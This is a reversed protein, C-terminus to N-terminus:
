NTLSKYSRTIRGYFLSSKLDYSMYLYKKQDRIKTILSSMSTLLQNRSTFFINSFKNTFEGSDNIQQGFAYNLHKAVLYQNVSRGKANDRMKAGEWRSKVNRYYADTDEDGNLFFKELNGEYFKITGKGAKVSIGVSGKQIQSYAPVPIVIRNEKNAEHIYKELIKSTGDGFSILIDEAIQRENSIMNGTSYIDIPIKKQLELIAAKELYAGKLNNVYGGFKRASYNERKAEEVRKLIKVIWDNLEQDDVLQLDEEPSVSSIVKDYDGNALAELGNMEGNFLQFKQDLKLLVQAIQQQQQQITLKNNNLLQNTILTEIQVISHELEKNQEDESTMQLLDTVAEKAKPSLQDLFNKEQQQLNDIHRGYWYLIEEDSKGKAM